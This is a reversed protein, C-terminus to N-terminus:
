PAKLRPVIFFNHVLGTTQSEQAVGDQHPVGDVHTADDPLEAGGPHGNRILLDREDGREGIGM